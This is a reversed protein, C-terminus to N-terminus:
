QGLWEFLRLRSYAWFRQATTQSIGMVDAAEALTLGAFYRLKVLEAKQPDERALRELAESVALIIEPDKSDAAHGDHLEARQMHGGQQPGLKRRAREILIRRMAEAAAGFFQGRDQWRLRADGILRLYAEHVLATAQLTQGRRETSMRQQAIKRLQDYVLTLLQASSAQDSASAAQILRTVEHQPTIDSMADSERLVLFDWCADAGKEIM